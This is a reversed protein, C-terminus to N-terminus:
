AAPPSTPQAKAKVKRRGQGQQAKIQNAVLPPVGVMPPVEEEDEEEAMAVLRDHDLFEDMFAGFRVPIQEMIAKIPPYGSMAFLLTEKGQEKMREYTIRGEERSNIFWDAFDAGDLDASNLHTIMAPRLTELFAHVPNLRPTGPNATATPQTQGMEERGEEPNMAPVPPQPPAVPLGVGTKAVAANYMGSGVVNAVFSLGQLIMPLYPLWAPGADGGRGGGEEGGTLALQLKKM